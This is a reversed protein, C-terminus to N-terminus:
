NEPHTLAAYRKLHYDVTGFENEIVTLRKFYHGVALEDTMGMGGHLQVAQQGVFRGAEGIMIKAASVARARELPESNLKLIALYVASISLETALYMDVMRHQLAQFSSIPQGFQRRQKAYNVTDYMLKRMCGSAEACVAATAEDLVQEILPLSEGEIGLMVAPVDNFIVDSARRDDITRYDHRQVGDAGNEVLLLSVGSREHRDGSTRATVIFHTAHPASAVVSKAGSIRWQHGDKRALTSIDNPLYRSTLEGWAFAVRAVGSAIDGLLNTAAESEIRKLFGVGLVITELFPEVVLAEGFAEMIIMVEVPGAGLGGASEPLTAALIGLEDAFATWVEQRWGAKSRLARKRAEFDYHDGLFRVITNKLLRQEVTFNFDM